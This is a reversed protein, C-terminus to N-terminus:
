SLTVTWGKATAVAVEAETLNSIPGGDTLAGVYQSSGFRIENGSPTYEGGYTTDPLSNLTNVASDHNYRSYGVVNTQYHQNKYQEYTTANTVQPLPISSVLNTLFGLGATGTQTASSISSMNIKIIQNKWKVPYPEGNLLEFTFDKCTTGENMRGTYGITSYAAATSSTMFMNNTVENTGGVVCLNIIHDVFQLNIFVQNLLFNAYFGWSGYPYHYSWSYPKFNNLFNDINKVEAAFINHNKGNRNVYDTPGGHQIKIYYTNFFDVVHTPIEDWIIDDKKSMGWISEPMASESQNSSYTNLDSYTTIDFKPINLWGVGEFVHSVRQKNIDLQTNENKYIFGPIIKGPNNVNAYAYQPSKNNTVIIESSPIQDLFRGGYFLYDLPTNNIDIGGGGGGSSIGEIEDVMEDLTLKGTGGTKARIADGIAELKEILAM